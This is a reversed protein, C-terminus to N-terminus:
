ILHIHAVFCCPIEKDEATEEEERDENGHGDSRQSFEVTPCRLDRLCYIVAFHDLVLIIADPAVGNEPVAGIESGVHGLHSRSLRFAVELLEHHVRLCDGSNPNITGCARLVSDIFM